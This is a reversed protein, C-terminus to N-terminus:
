SPTNIYQCSNLTVSLHVITIVSTFVYWPVYMCGFLGISMYVYGEDMYRGFLGLVLCMYTLLQSNFALKGIGLNAPFNIQSGGSQVPSSGVSSIGM